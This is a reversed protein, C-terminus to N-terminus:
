IKLLLSHGSRSFLEWFDHEGLKVVQGKAGDIIEDLFYIVIHLEVTRDLELVQVLVVDIMNYHDNPLGM